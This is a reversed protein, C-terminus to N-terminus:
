VRERRLHYGQARCTACYVRHRDGTPNPCARCQRPTPVPGPKMRYAAMPREEYLMRDQLTLWVSHGSPCVMRLKLGNTQMVSEREPFMPKACGSKPCTM